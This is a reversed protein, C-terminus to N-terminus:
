DKLSLKLKKLKKQLISMPCGVVNEDWSQQIVKKAIAVV